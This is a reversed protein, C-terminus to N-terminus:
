TAGQPIFQPIQPQGVDQVQFPCLDPLFWVSSFYM